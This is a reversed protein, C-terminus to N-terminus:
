PPFVPEIGTPRALSLALGRCIRLVRQSLLKCRGLSASPRHDAREIQGSSQRTGSVLQASARQELARAALLHPGRRPAGVFPHRKVSLLGRRDWGERLVVKDDPARAGGSSGRSRIGDRSRPEELLHLLPSSTCSLSLLLFALLVPRKGCRSRLQSHEQPDSAGLLRV